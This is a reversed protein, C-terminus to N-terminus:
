GLLKANKQVLAELIAAASSVTRGLLMEELQQSISIGYELEFDTFFQCRKLGNDELGIILGGVTLEDIEIVPTDLPLGAIERAAKRVFDGVNESPVVFEGM